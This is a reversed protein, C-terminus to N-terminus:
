ERTINEFSYSQDRMQSEDLIGNITVGNIVKTKCFHNILTMMRKQFNTPYNLSWYQPFVISMAELLEKPPFRDRIKSSIKYSIWNVSELVSAVIKKLDEIKVSSLVKELEVERRSKLSDSKPEVRAYYQMPIDVGRVRVCVEDNAGIHLFNGLNNM